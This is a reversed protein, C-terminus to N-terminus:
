LGADTLAQAVPADFAEHAAAAILASVLAGATGSKRMMTAVAAAVLAHSLLRTQPSPKRPM